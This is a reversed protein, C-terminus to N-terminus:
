NKNKHKKTNPAKEKKKKLCFVAYSTRMLSQLESTHEESRRDAPACGGGRRRAVRRSEDSPRRPPRPRTRAGGAVAAITLAGPLASHPTPARHPRRRRTGDGRGVPARSTRAEGPRVGPPWCSAPM